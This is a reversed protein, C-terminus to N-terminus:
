QECDITVKVWPLDLKCKGSKTRTLVKDLQLDGIKMKGLAGGIDDSKGVDGAHDNKATDATAESSSPASAKAEDTKNKDAAPAPSAPGASAEKAATSPIDSPAAKAAVPAASEALAATVVDPKKTAPPEGKADSQGCLQLDQPARKWIMTKSLFKMGAYGLVKLDGNELPTLELDYKRGREPSYIWGNDWRGGGVPAVDGIVQKGCGSADSESKIWVVNGCLANGCQKIEVAGRGTDDMWIGTPDSAASASEFAAPALFAIFASAIYKGARM